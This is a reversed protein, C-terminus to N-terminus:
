CYKAGRKESAVFSPFSIIRVMISLTRSRFSQSLEIVGICTNRGATIVANLIAESTSPTLTTDIRNRRSRNEDM